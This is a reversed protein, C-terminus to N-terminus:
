IARPCVRSRSPRRPPWPRRVVLRLGGDRRRQDPLHGPPREVQPSARGRRHARCLRYPRRCRQQRGHLRGRRPHSALQGARRAARGAARGLGGHLLRARQGHAHRGPRRDRVAGVARPGVPEHRRGARRLHADGRERGHHRGAQTSQRHGSEAAVHGIRGWERIEKLGEPVAPRLCSLGAASEATRGLMAGTRHEDEVQAEYDRSWASDALRRAEGLAIPGSRTVQEAFAWVAERFGEDEFLRNALGWALATEAPIREGLLIMERARLEGVIRPLRWSLGGEPGMGVRVFAASFSASRAALILDAALAM